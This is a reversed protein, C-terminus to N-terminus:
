AVIDRQIGDRLVGLIFGESARLAVEEMGGKKPGTGCPAIRSKLMQAERSM